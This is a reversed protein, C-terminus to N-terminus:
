HNIKCNSTKVVQQGKLIEILSAPSNFGIESAWKRMSFSSDSTRQFAIFDQIYLVPDKYSYVSLM